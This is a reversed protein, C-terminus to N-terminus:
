NSKFASLLETSLIDRSLFTSKSSIVSELRVSEAMSFGFYFPIFNFALNDNAGMESKIRLSETIITYNLEIMIFTTM